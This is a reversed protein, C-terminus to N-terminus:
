KHIRQTHDTKSVNKKEPRGVFVPQWTVQPSRLSDFSKGLRQGFALELQVVPCAVITTRFEREIPDSKSLALLATM